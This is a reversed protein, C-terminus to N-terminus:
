DGDTAREKAREAIGRLAEAMRSMGVAAMKGVAEGARRMTEPLDRLVQRMAQWGREFAAAKALAQQRTRGEVKYGRVEMVWRLRGGTVDRYPAM